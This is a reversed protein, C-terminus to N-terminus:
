PGEQRSLENGYFEVVKGKGAFPARVAIYHHCLNLLQIQFPM